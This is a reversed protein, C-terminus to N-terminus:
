PDNGARQDSMGSENMGCRGSEEESQGIREEQCHNMVATYLGAEPVADGVMSRGDAVGIWAARYCGICDQYRYIKTAEVRLQDRRQRSECM